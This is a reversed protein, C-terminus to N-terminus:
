AMMDFPATIALTKGDLRSLISGGPFSLIVRVAALMMKSAKRRRNEEWKGYRDDGLIPCSIHALHARIQHTRGTVLEVELLSLGDKSALVNYRTIIEKAGAEYADCVRVIANDAEKVLYAKLTAESQEPTGLVVCRYFKRITRLRMAEDLAAQAKANRAFIVIGSTSADLRHVPYLQGYEGALRGELTDEGGDAEAVPLGAPKNLVLIDDDGYIVPAGLAMGRLADEFPRWAKGKPLSTFRMSEKKVPHIFELSYAWLAIQEGPKANSNYRQDGWIPSDNGALQVRIQHHRGTFLYVNLLTLENISLIANYQLLARKAGADEALALHSTGTKEERIIYSVLNESNKVSGEVLAAYHKKATRSAFQESLRAAAKSTRAFVMVGGVPRDLRHVIGLYVEGPKNYKEKIYAKITSAVDMDGSADLQVPMNVPKEVVIIHNDEYYVPIM